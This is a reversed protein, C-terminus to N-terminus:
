WNYKSSKQKFINLPAVMLALAAFLLKILNFVYNIGWASTEYM